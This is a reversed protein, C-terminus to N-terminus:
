FLGMLDSPVGGYSPRSFNNLLGVGIGAINGYTNANNAGRAQYSSALNQGQNQAINGVANAYNTGLAQNQGAATQGVGALSALRNAYNNFEGSALNGSYELASRQAAGSDQIGLAANRATLARAQENQRFQYDPSAFFSAMNGSGTAPTGSAGGATATSTASPNSAYGYQNQYFNAASNLNGPGGFYGADIASQAQPNARLFDYTSRNAGNGTSLGYLNALETLASQGKALWPANDARSQDYQRRQEATAANAANNTANNAQNLAQNNSRNGLISTGAGIAASGLIAATTGIAM